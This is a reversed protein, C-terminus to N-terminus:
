RGEKRGSKGAKRGGMRGKKREKRGGWLTVILVAMYLEKNRGENM